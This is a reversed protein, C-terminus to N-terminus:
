SAQDVFRGAAQRPAMPTGARCQIDGPELAADRLAESLMATSDRLRAASGEREAWLTVAAREGLVSVQAHVPGMPEIDLSFRARWIVRGDASQAHGDRGIEFQAISVGQRTALPIEFLWQPGQADARQGAGHPPDPLSAVQLLTHRALAADTQVLLRQAIDAPASGSEISAAAAAQAAPPAGRYPPPPAVPGNVAVPREAGTSPASVNAKSAAPARLPVATAPSIPGGPNTPGPEDLWLKVVERFVLLAAKLDIPGGTAGANTATPSTGASTWPKASAAGQDSTAAAGGNRSGAPAFQAELFLGSRALAAKIDNSGLNEDLPLTLGLLDLAAQLVPQPPSVQPSGVMAVVNALLPALGGQRSAAIRTAQSIVEPSVVNSAEPAVASPTALRTGAIEVITARGAASAPAGAGADVGTVTVAPALGRAQGDGAAAGHTGDGIIVVQLGSASNQVAVRVTQGPLLPIPSRADLVLGPLALRVMDNELLALVLADVIQGAQLAPASSSFQTPLSIQSVSVIDV